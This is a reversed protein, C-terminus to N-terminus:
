IHYFSWLNKIQRSLQEYSWTRKSREQSNPDNILFKGNETYSHIVIFHGTTTFDGPGVSCIIPHGSQLESKMASESLPLEKGIIGFHSAGKTMLSWKTGSGESLYQNTESFNAVIAPNAKKNHTLGVIVMSLCTPGCGDLAINGSGYSAYGWRKDWQLFLPIGPTNCESSIDIKNRNIQNLGNNPYDLVFDLTEPNGALLNLLEEPYNKSNELISSIKPELQSMKKLKELTSINETTISTLSAVTTNQSNESSSGSSNKPAIFSQKLLLSLFCAFIFIYLVFRRKKKQHFKKTTNKSSTRKNTYYTM